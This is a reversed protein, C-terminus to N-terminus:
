NRTKRLLALAMFVFLSASVMELSEEVGLFMASHQEKFEAAFPLLRAMSDIMKAVVMTSLAFFVSWSLLDAKLLSQIWVKLKLALSVAIYLLLAIVVGGIVKEHVPIADSLYFRSKLISDTTWAKHWDLERMAALAMSMMFVFRLNTKHKIFSVAALLSAVAFLGATLQEVPGSESFFTAAFNKDQNAIVFAIVGATCTIIYLSFYYIRQFM